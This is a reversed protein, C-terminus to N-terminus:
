ISGGLVHLEKKLNEWAKVLGPAKLCIPVKTLDKDKGLCGILKGDSDHYETVPLGNGRNIQGVIITM